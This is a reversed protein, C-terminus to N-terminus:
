GNLIDTYQVGIINDAMVAYVCPTVDISLEGWFNASIKFWFIDAAGGSKYISGCVSLLLV